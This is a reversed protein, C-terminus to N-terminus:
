AGRKPSPHPLISIVSDLLYFGGIILAMYPLLKLVEFVTKLLNNVSTDVNTLDSAEITVSGSQSLLAHASPVGIADTAVEVTAMAVQHVAQKTGAENYAVIAGSVGTGIGIVAMVGLMLGAVVKKTVM